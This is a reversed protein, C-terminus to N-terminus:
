GNDVGNIGVKEGLDGITVGPFPLMTKTDRIPVAFTHLGYCEENVILQAYVLAHTATKGLLGIWCKAAEFDPSHMVFQQTETNYTATTRMGNTNSGHGVETLCFCVVVQLINVFLFNILKRYLHPIEM